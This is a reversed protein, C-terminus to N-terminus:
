DISGRINLKRCFTHAVSMMTMQIRKALVYSEETALAQTVPAIMKEMKRMM